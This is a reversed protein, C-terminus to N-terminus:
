LTTRLGILDSECNAILCKEVTQQPSSAEAASSLASYLVSSTTPMSVKRKKPKPLIPGVDQEELGEEAITALAAPEEKVM